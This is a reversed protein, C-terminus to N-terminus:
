TPKQERCLLGCRMLLRLYVGPYPSLCLYLCPSPRASVRVCACVWVCVGWSVFVCLTPFAVGPAFGHFTDFTLQCWARPEFRSPNPSPTWYAGSASCLWAAVEEGSETVGPQPV